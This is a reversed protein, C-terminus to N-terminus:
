KPEAIAVLVAADADVVVAEVVEDLRTMSVRVILEGYPGGDAIADVPGSEVAADVAAAESDRLGILLSYICRDQRLVKPRMLDWKRLDWHCNWPRKLDLGTKHQPHHYHKTFCIAVVVCGVVVVEVVSGVVVVSGVTVVVITGVDVAVSGM